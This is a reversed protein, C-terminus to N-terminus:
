IGYVQLEERLKQLECIERYLGSVQRLEDHRGCGVIRGKDLVLVEDMCEMVKVRSSAILFTSNGTISYLN